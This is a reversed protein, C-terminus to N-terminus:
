YCPTSAIDDRVEVLARYILQQEGSLKAHNGKKPPTLILQCTKM